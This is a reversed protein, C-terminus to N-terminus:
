LAGIKRYGVIAIGVADSEDYTDLTNEGLHCNKTVWEHVLKKKQESELGRKNAEALAHVQNPRVWAEDDAREADGIVFVNNAAFGMRMASVAERQKMDRSITQPVGTNSNSHALTFIAPVELAGGLLKASAFVKYGAYNHDRIRNKVIAVANTFQSQINYLKDSLMIGLPQISETHVVYIEKNESPFAVVAFASGGLSPDAGIVFNLEGFSHQPGRKQLFAKLNNLLTHPM